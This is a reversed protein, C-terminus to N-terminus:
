WSRIIEPGDGGSQWAINRFRFMPSGSLACAEYVPAVHLCDIASFWCLRFHDIRVIRSAQWALRKAYRRSHLLKLGSDHLEGVVRPRFERLALDIEYREQDSWEPSTCSNSLGDDARLGANLAKRIGVVNSKSIEGSKVAALHKQFTGM